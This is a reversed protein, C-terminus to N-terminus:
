YRALLRRLWHMDHRRRARQLLTEKILEELQAQVADKIAELVARDDERGAFPRTDFPEGFAIYLREPRPLLTGLIGSPVPPILNSDFMEGSVRRLLSEVWTDAIDDRDWRIDWMEDPGINAVPTITFGHKIAMRVFGTRGEWFLKYLEGRRKAGERTGGPFVLISEGADMLAACVKRNALVMGLNMLTDGLPGLMVDAHTLLRPLMGTHERIASPLFGGEWGWSAHNSVFLSPRQTDVREVHLLQPDFYFQMMQYIRSTDTRGSLALAKDIHAQLNEPERARSSRPAAKRAMKAERKRNM